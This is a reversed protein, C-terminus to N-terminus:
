IRFNLKDFESKVKVIEYVMAMFHMPPIMAQNHDNAYKNIIIKAWVPINESDDEFLEEYLMNYDLEQESVLKRMKTISNGIIQGNKSELGTFLESIFSRFKKENSAIANINSNLVNNEDVLNQISYIIKRIDPYNISIIRKITNDNYTVNESKLINVCNEFIYEKSMRSFVYSTGFRSQLPDILKYKYNCTFLFRGHSQYKEFIGRLAAQANLSLYDAEDIFVVKVKSGGLTPTRFFEDVTTRMIDVGTSSSGNLKLVDARDKIVKSLLILALTTKGSGPPGYFLLHPIQEEEIYRNFTKVYDDPLVMDEIERPRYKEVWLYTRELEGAM